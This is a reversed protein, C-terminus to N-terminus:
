IMCCLTSELLIEIAKFVGSNILFGHGFGIEYVMVLGRKMYSLMLLMLMPHDLFILQVWDHEM